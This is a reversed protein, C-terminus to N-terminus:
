NGQIEDGLGNYRQKLISVAIRRISPTPSQLLAVIDDEIDRVVWDRLVDGDPSVWGDDKSVRTIVYLGPGRKQDFGIVLEGARGVIPRGEYQGVVPGIHGALYYKGLEDVSPILTYGHLGYFNLTHIWTSRPRSFLLRLDAPVEKRVASLHKARAVKVSLFDACSSLVPIRAASSAVPASILIISIFTFFRRM